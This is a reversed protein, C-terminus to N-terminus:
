GPLFILMLAMVGAWIPPIAMLTWAIRSNQRSFMVWAGFPALICVVWLTIMMLFAIWAFPNLASGARDFAIPSLIAVVMSALAAAM